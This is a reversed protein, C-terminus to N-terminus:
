VVQLRAATRWAAFATVVLWLALAALSVAQRRVVSLFAPPAYHFAPARAWLEAGARYDWGAAGGREAFDRNLLDVLRRRHAEAADSFHRHHAVDTGAFARSLTRVAIVPSLVAFAEAWSEQRDVADALAAFHHDLIENEYAAEAQLELGALLSADMLTEAGAFGQAELLAESLTNVREERAPGGPLGATLSREVARAVEAHTPAPAILRAADSAARPLVMATAVWFSLLAVLAARSSSARASVALTLSLFVTFYLSYAAGVGAIRAWSAATDPGTPALLALALVVGAGPLLVAGLALAVGLGKGVLLLSPRAGLSVLQRLTGREREGAWAAFGLAVVLLPVLLSLVGAGSLGGFRALSTADLSAAATADNRRHAELKLSAGVFPEVGPDLYSLVGAPKFVHTGYHAAVHPNKDGQGRWHRNAGHEAAEREAHVARAQVAGFALAVVLLGLTALSLIRFRGDRALELLEKRILAVLPAETM